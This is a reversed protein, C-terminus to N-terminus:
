LFLIAHNVCDGRNYVTTVSKGLVVLSVTDSGCLGRSM